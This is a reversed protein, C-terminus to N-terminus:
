YGDEGDHTQDRYFSEFNGDSAYRGRADQCVVIYGAKVLAEPHLGQKGYPTREVLVPWPGDGDPRYVDARLVVGDRMPVAVDRDVRVGQTEQGLTWADVFFSLVLAIVTRQIMHMLLFSFFSSMLREDASGPPTVHAGLHRRGNQPVIVGGM